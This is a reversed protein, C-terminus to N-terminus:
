AWAAYMFTDLSDNYGDGTTTLTFSDDNFTVWPGGTSPANALNPHLAEGGGRESDVINWYGSTNYRKILVFSPRFGLTIEKGSVGSGTYSGFKSFGAVESWCYAMYVDTSNNVAWSSGVSFVSSTPSTSTWVGTNTGQQNALDLLLYASGVSSHRVAWYGETGKDRNKVIILDPAANLGHGVTEGATGNGTYSVISFGADTNARVSSTISGDTNSVTSGGANWAWGVYSVTSQNHSNYNNDMSWGNADFSTVADVDTYEANNNNSNFGKSAGRITDHLQHNVSAARNKIWLLDPSFGLGTISQTSGNGTYLKTDFYDRPNIGGAGVGLFMQQISM